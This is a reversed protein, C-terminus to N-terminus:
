RIWNKLNTTISQNKSINELINKLHEMEQSYLIRLDALPFRKGIIKMYEKTGVNVSFSIIM